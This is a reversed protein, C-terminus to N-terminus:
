FSYSLLLSLFLKIFLKNLENLLVDGVVDGVIELEDDGVSVGGIGLVPDGTPFWPNDAAPQMSWGFVFGIVPM